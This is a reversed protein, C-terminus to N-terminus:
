KEGLVSFYFVVAIAGIAVMSIILLDSLLHSTWDM